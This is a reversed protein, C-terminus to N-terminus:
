GVLLLYCSSIHCKRTAPTNTSSRRTALSRAATSIVETANCAAAAAADFALTSDKEEKNIM